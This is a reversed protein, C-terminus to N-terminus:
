RPAIDLTEKNSIMKTFGKRKAYRRATRWSNCIKVVNGYDHSIEVKTGNMQIYAIKESEPNMMRLIKHNPNM